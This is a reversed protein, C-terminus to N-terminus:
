FKYVMKISGSNFVITEYTISEDVIKIRNLENDLKFYLPNTVEQKSFGIKEFGDGLGWDKDIYTMVDDPLHLRKFGIILKSLGGQIVFGQKVAFRVLEVSFYNSSHNMKRPSSFSAVAVVEQDLCLAYNFRTSAFGQLHNETLFVQAIPKTIRTMTTKRGHLKLNSGCFSKLRAIVKLPKTIWIDEWLQIFKINQNQYHQAVEQLIEVDFNNEIPILNVIVKGGDLEALIFLENSLLRTYISKAAVQDLFNEIWDSNFIM